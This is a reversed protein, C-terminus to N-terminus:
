DSPSGTAVALTPCGQSSDYLWIADRGSRKAQYLAEDAQRVLESPSHQTRDTAAIGMSTTVRIGPHQASIAHRAMTARFRKALSVAMTLPCDSAVIIFEEGGYRAVLDSSRVSQTLIRATQRLAEDGATHGYTDNIVKFHDLDAIVVSLPVQRRRCDNWERLLQDELVGRNALGTLSDLHARQELKSFAHWAKLAARVRAILEASVLPKTLLDVAGMNLALVREEATAFDAYLLVPISRTAQNEKMHHVLGLGGHTPLRFQALILNPQFISLANTATILDRALHVEIRGARLENCLRASETPSPEVLLVRCPLDTPELKPKCLPDIAKPGMEAWSINSQSRSSGQIMRPPSGDPITSPMTRIAPLGIGPGAGAMADENDCQMLDVEKM